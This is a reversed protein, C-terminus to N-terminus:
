TRFIFQIGNKFPVTFNVSCSSHDPEERSQEWRSSSETRSAEGGGWCGGGCCLSSVFSDLYATRMLSPEGENAKMARTKGEPGSFGRSAPGPQAM